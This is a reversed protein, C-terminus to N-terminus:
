NLNYRKFIWKVIPDFLWSKSLHRVNQPYDRRDEPGNHAKDLQDCTRRSVSVM